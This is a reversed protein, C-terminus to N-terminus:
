KGVFELSPVIDGKVEISIIDFTQGINNSSSVEITYSGRDLPTLLIFQGLSNTKFARVPEGRKNKVILLVNSLLKRNSDMVVGSVINPKKAFQVKSILVHGSSQTVEDKSRDVVSITSKNKENLRQLLEQYKRELEDYSGSIKQKQSELNKLHQEQGGTEKSQSKAQTIEDRLSEIESNLRDNQEKLAKVVGEAEKTAEVAPKLEPKIEPVIKEQKTEVTKTEVAKQEIPLIKVGEKERIYSLLKKLKDTKEVIDEETQLDESTKIVREGRIPLILEGGTPLLNIFRRGSHMDPTIPELEINQESHVVETQLLHKLVPRPSVNEHLPHPQAEPLKSIRIPKNELTLEYHEPKNEVKLETPELGQPKPEVPVQKFEEIKQEELVPETEVEVEVETTVSVGFEPAIEPTVPYSAFAERVKIAYEAEPIDLPDRGAELDKHKLFEELKRRSSTPALTILEQKVVDVSNYAFATPIVPEKKWIRQTPMNIARFFSAIWDDLGREQVPLFALGLGLLVFVVVLPLKFIGVVTTFSIYAVIGCVLLYSFQRMTLDGILKFEVDMINQPVAHQKNVQPADRIPM